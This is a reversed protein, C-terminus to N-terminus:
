FRVLTARLAAISEPSGTFMDSPFQRV